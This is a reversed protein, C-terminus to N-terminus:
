IMTYCELIGYIWIVGLVRYDQHTMAGEISLAGVSGLPNMQQYWAILCQSAQFRKGFAGPVM